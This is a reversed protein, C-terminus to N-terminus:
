HLLTQKHTLLAASCCVFTEKHISTFQLHTASLNKCLSWAETVQVRTMKVATLNASLM